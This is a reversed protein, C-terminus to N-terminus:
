NKLMILNFKLKFYKQGIILSNVLKAKVCKNWTIEYSKNKNYIRSLVKEKM